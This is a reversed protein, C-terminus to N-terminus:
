KLADKAAFVVNDHLENLSGNNKIIYDWDNFDDLACDAVDNHKKEADRELKILIGGQKQIAHAEVPYRFDTILLIDCTTNKLLYDVWVGDHVAKAAQGWEIWITRASKGIEPVIVDKLKENGPIDYFEPKQLGFMEECQQKLKYAFSGKCIKKDPYTERLHNMLFRGATDKGVYRRHGFAFIKM